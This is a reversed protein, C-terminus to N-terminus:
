RDYSVFYWPPDLRGQLIVLDGFRPSKEPKPLKPIHGIGVSGFLGNYVHLLTAGETQYYGGVHIYGVWRSSRPESYGEPLDAVFKDLAPRSWRFRLVFGDNSLGLWVVGISSTMVVPLLYLGLGVRGRCVILAVIWWVWATPIGVFFVLTAILNPWPHRPSALGAWIEAIIVIFMFVTLRRNWRRVAIVDTRDFEQEDTAM